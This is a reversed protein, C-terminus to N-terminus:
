FRFEFDGVIKQIINKSGINKVVSKLFVNKPLCFDSWIRKLLLKESSITISAFNKSYGKDRDM